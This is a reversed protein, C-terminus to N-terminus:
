RRVPKPFLHMAYEYEHIFVLICSSPLSLHAAPQLRSVFLYAVFSYLFGTIAEAPQHFVMNGEEKEECVCEKAKNIRGFVPVDQVESM